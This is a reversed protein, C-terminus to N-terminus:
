ASQGLVIQQQARGSSRGLYAAILERVASEWQSPEAALRFEEKGLAYGWEVRDASFAPILSGVVMPSCLAWSACHGQYVFSFRQGDDDYQFDSGLRPADVASSVSVVGLSSRPIQTPVLLRHILQEAAVVDGNEGAEAISVCLALLDAGEPVVGIGHPRRSMPSLMRLIRRLPRNGAVDAFSFLFEDRAVVAAAADEAAVASEIAQLKTRVSAVSAADISQVHLALALGFFLACASIAESTRADDLEAVTTGRGHHIEVLGISQLEALAERLPTRSVGLWEMLERDVLREGPVFTGDTIAQLIVEYVNDRLLVRRGDEAADTDSEQGAAGPVPARSASPAPAAGAGISRLFLEVVEDFYDLIIAEADQGSGDECAVILRDMRETDFDLVEAHRSNLGVLWRVHIRIESVIQRLVDSDRRDLFVDLLHRFPNIRGGAAGSQIDERLEVLKALDTQDLRPTTTRVLDAYIHRAVAMLERFYPLDLPRVRTESQPRVEVLGVRDLRRLAERVPTRSARVMAELTSEHLRQGPQFEGSLISTEIIRYVRDCLTEHRFAIPTLPIPM